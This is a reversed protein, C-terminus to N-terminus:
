LDVVWKDLANFVRFPSFRGKFQEILWRDTDYIFLHNAPNQVILLVVQFVNQERSLVLVSCITTFRTTEVWKLFLLWSPNMKGLYPYFNFINAFADFKTRSFNEGPVFVQVLLFFGKRKPSPSNKM